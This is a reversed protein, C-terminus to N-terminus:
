DDEDTLAEAIEEFCATYDGESIFQITEWYFDGETQGPADLAIEIYRRSDKKHGRIIVIEDKNIILHNLVSSSNLRHSIYVFSGLDRVDYNAASANGCATFSVITLVLSVWIITSKM